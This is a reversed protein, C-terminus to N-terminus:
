ELGTKSMNAVGGDSKDMNGVIQTVERVAGYTVLRTGRYVKKRFQDKKQM